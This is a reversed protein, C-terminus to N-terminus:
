EREDADEVKILRINTESIRCILKWAKDYLRVGKEFAEKEAGSVYVIKNKGKEGTSLYRHPHLRGKSCECGPRGCKKRTEVLSGRIMGATEALSDMLDDRKKRLGAVRGKKM